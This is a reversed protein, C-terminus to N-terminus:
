NEFSRIRTALNNDRILRIHEAHEHLEIALPHRGSGRQHGYHFLTWRVRTGGYEIEYRVFYEGPATCLSFFFSMMFIIFIFIEEASREASVTIIRKPWMLAFAWSARTARGKFDTGVNEVALM